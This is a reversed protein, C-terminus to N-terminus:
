FSQLLHGQIRARLAVGSWTSCARYKRGGLQWVAGLPRGFTPIQVAIPVTKRYALAVARPSALRKRSRGQAPRESGQTRRPRGLLSFVMYVLAERPDGPHNKFFLHVVFFPGHARTKGPSRRPRWIRAPQQGASRAPSPASPSSSTERRPTDGGHPKHGGNRPPTSGSGTLVRSAKFVRRTHKTSPTYHKEADFSSPFKADAGDAADAIEASRRPRYFPSNPRYRGRRGRGQARIAGHLRHGSQTPLPHPRHPRLIGQAKERRFFAVCKLAIYKISPPPCPQESTLM